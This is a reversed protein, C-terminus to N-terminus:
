GSVIRENEYFKIAGLTIVVAAALTVGASIAVNSILIPEARLM